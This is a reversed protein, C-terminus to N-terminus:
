RVAVARLFFRGDEETGVADGTFGLLTYGVALRIAGLTLGAEARLADLDGLQRGDLSARRVYEVAVDAPGLVIVEGRASGAIRDDEAGWARQDAAELGLGLRLRGWARVTAAVAGVTADRDAVGDRHDEIRAVRALLSVPDTRWAASLWVERTSADIGSITGEALLGRAAFTLTRTAEWRAGVSAVWQDGAGESRLELRGDARLPGAAWGAAVGGAGRAVTSGDPRLREGREASVSVTLGEALELAAGALRGVRLGLPDRAVREETFLTGGRVRQRGAVVSEQGTGSADGVPDVALTGQISEAGDGWGGSALLRPGLEPGWGARLGLSGAGHRLTAGAASFTADTAEGAVDLTQLHSATLTLARSARWAGHLGVAVQEGEEPRRLREQLADLTLAVPGVPWTASGQLRAGDLRTTGTPDRPDAGSREAWSLRLEAPGVSGRALAGRERADFPEEYGGGSFGRPRERWWGEFTAPGARGEASLHLATADVGPLAPSAFTLGGDLSTAVGGTGHLTGESRAVEVRARFREGLDVAGDAAVLGWDEGPRTETAGSLALQVPGAAAAAQVGGVGREGEGVGAVLYDVTLWAEAAAFPEASPLAAAPAVSPLPRTLLLRGSVADLAYDRGRALARREVTLGTWPDRWEVRVVESGAVVAPHRLYYLSGGTAAFRDSRPTGADLGSLDASPRGGFLLARVAVPGVEREGALRAGFFSRDHRSLEGGDLGTRGNGIGLSLGHGAASGWLRGRGPNRDEHAARDGPSAFTRLPDLDLAAVRAERPSLIAEVSDDRDDLDIGAELEFGRWAGGVSGALRGSLLLGAAGGGQLELEGLLLGRFAGEAAVPQAHLVTVGDRSASLEVRGGAAPAFAGFRGAGDPRVAIGGVRLEVGASARGAIVAGGGGARLALTALRAPPAPYARAAGSAPRALHVVQGWLDVRGEGVAVTVAVVNRGDSLPVGLSWRGDTGAVAEREGARVRAGAAAEGTLRWEVTGAALRLAGRWGDGGDLAGAEAGAPPAVPLDVSAAGGPSLEFTRTVGLGDASVAHAGHASRDALVIRGGVDVAHFRGEADTVAARGDEFRVRAGAVGPEEPDCRGSGDLDLCVRGLVVGGRAPAGAVWASQGAGAGPVALAAVALLPAASALARARM